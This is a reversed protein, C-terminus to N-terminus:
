YRRRNMSGNLATGVGLSRAVRVSALFRIRAGCVASRIMSIIRLNDGFTSSALVETGFDARQFSAEFNGRIQAPRPELGRYPTGLISHM